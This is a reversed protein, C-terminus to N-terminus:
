DHYLHQISAITRYNLWVSLCLFWTTEYLKRIFDEVRCVDKHLVELPLDNHALETPFLVRKMAIHRERGRHTHIHLLMTNTKSM